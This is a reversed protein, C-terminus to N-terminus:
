YAKVLDTGPYYHKLIEKYSFGNEAMGKAGWQSLGVGHGSGRGSFVFVGSEKKVEFITSKLTGYGIIRRLDDGAIVASRGSADTVKVNRARGSGTTEVTEISEPEQIKYGAQVLLSGLSAGPLQFDWTFRPAGEDYPSKVPVLYPYDRNWVNISAETMGGANSHYVTLAPTGGYYIVEGATEKVAKMSAVDESQSGTYVQGMVTGELHFVAKSRSRKQHLAYTRAVVAQTKIVDDAWKSSIENNIIGVLYAELAVENVVMLGDGADIVELSGRFPKGNLYIRDDSPKLRLPMAKERGNVRVKGHVARVIELSGRDSGKISIEKAGKLVRVKILDGAQGPVVRVCSCLCLVVVAVLWWHKSASISFFSKVEIM